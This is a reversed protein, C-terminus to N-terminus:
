PDGDGAGVGRIRGAQRPHPQATRNRSPCRGEGDDIGLSTPGVGANAQAHDRKRLRGENGPSSGLSQRGAGGANGRAFQGNSRRGNSLPTEQMFDGARRSRGRSHGCPRGFLDDGHIRCDCGRYRRKSLRLTVTALSAAGAADKVLYEFADTGVFLGVRPLYTFSGDPYVVVTGFLGTTDVSTVTLPLLGEDNALLGLDAGVSLFTDVTTGYADDVAVASAVEPVAVTGLLCLCVGVLLLTRQTM